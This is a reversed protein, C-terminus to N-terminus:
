TVLLSEGAGLDARLGAGLDTRLGAGLAEPGAGAPPGPNGGTGRGLM